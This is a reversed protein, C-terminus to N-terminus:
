CIRSYMESKRDTFGWLTEIQRKARLYAQSIVTWQNKSWDSLKKAASKNIDESRMQHRADYIQRDSKRSRM